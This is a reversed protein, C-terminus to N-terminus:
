LKLYLSLYGEYITNINKKQRIDQLITFPIKVEPHGVTKEKNRQINGTTIFRFMTGNQYTMIMQQVKYYKYLLM